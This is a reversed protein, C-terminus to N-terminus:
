RARILRTRHRSQPKTRTKASASALAFTASDFFHRGSYPGPSSRL